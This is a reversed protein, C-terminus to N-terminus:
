CKCSKFNTTIEKRMKCLHHNEFRREHWWKTDKKKFFSRLSCLKWAECFRFKDRGQTRFFPPNRFAHGTGRLPSERGPSWLGSKGEFAGWFCSTPPFGQKLWQQWAGLLPFGLSLLEGIERRRATLCSWGGNMLHSITATLTETHKDLLDALLTFSQKSLTKNKLCFTTPLPLAIVPFQVLGYPKNVDINRVM